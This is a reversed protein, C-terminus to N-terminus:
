QERTGLWTMSTGRHNEEIVTGIFTDSGTLRLKGRGTLGTAPQTLTFTMEKGSPSPKGRFRLISGRDVHPTRGVIETGQESFHLLIAEAM